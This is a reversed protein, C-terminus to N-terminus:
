NLFIATKYDHLSMESINLYINYDFCVLTVIKAVVVEIEAKHHLVNHASTVLILGSNLCM